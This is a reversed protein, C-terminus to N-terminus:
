WLSWLFFSVTKLNFTLKLFQNCFKLYECVAKYLLLRFHSLKWSFVVYGYFYIGSCAGPMALLFVWAATWILVFQRGLLTDTKTRICFTESPNISPNIFLWLCKYGRCDYCVLICGEKSPDPIVKLGLVHSLKHIFSPCVFPLPDFPFHCEQFQETGLCFKKHTM